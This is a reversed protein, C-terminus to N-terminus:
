CSIDEGVREALAGSRETGEALGDVGTQGTGRNGGGGLAAGDAVATGYLTMAGVVEDFEETFSVKDTVTTGRTKAGCGTRQTFDGEFLRVIGVLIIM